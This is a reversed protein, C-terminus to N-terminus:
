TWGASCPCSCRVASRMSAATTQQSVSGAPYVGRVGDGTRCGHVRARQHPHVHRLEDRRQGAPHLHPRQGRLWRREHRRQVRLQRQERLEPVLAQGGLLGLDDDRRLRLVAQHVVGARIRSTGALLRLVRSRPQEPRRFDPQQRIDVRGNLGSRHHEQGRRLQLRRPAVPRAVADELPERLHEVVLRHEPEEPRVREHHCEAAHQQHPEGDMAPPQRPGTFTTQAAPLNANIYYVGNVDKNYLFEVTGTFGGPLRQDVAFNTRWVQPFKFDPDTVNLEFSAAGAGTM